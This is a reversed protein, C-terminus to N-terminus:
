TVRVFECDIKPRIVDEFHFVHQMINLQQIIWCDGAKDCGQKNGHENKTGTSSIREIIRVYVGQVSVETCLLFGATLSM